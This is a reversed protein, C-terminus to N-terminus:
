SLEELREVMRGYSADDQEICLSKLKLQDAAIMTGGTGAFPDIVLDGPYCSNGLFVKLGEPEKAAGNTETRTTSVEFHGDLQHHSQKGGRWAFLVWEITKRFTYGPVPCRAGNTKIWAIPFSQVNWREEHDVQAEVWGRLLQFNVHDCFMYLHASPKLIRSIEAIAPPLLVAFQEPTDEYGHVGVERKAVGFKHANIGYPPDTLCVDISASPIGKMLQLCDGHLVKHRGVKMIQGQQRALESHKINKELRGLIKEAEKRSPAKSLQVALEPIRLAEAMRLDSNVRSFSSSHEGYLEVSAQKAAEPSITVKEQKLEAVLVEELLQKGKDESFNTLASEKLKTQILKLQKLKAIRETLAIQEQWTFGIRAENEAEESILYDLADFTDAVRICPITGFPIPNGAFNVTSGTDHLSSVARLRREGTLLSNDALVIIPHLMGISTTLSESLKALGVIDFERRAREGVSITEVKLYEIQKHAHAHVM